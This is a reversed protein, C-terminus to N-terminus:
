GPLTDEKYAFKLISCKCCVDLSHSLTICNLSTLRFVTFAISFADTFNDNYYM